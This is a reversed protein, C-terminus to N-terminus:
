LNILPPFTRLSANFRDTGGTCDLGGCGMDGPTVDVLMKFLELASSEVM